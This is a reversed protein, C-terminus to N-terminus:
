LTHQVVRNSILCFSFQNHPCPFLLHLADAGEECGRRSYCDGTRYINEKWSRRSCVTTIQIMDWDRGSKVKGLKRFVIQKSEEDEDAGSDIKRSRDLNWCGSNGGKLYLLESKWGGREHCLLERVNASTPCHKWPDSRLPYARIHNVIGRNHNTITKVKKRGSKRKSVM